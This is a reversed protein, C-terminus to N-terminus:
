IEVTSPPPAGAGIGSAVPQLHCRDHSWDCRRQQSRIPVADGAQCVLGRWIRGPARLCAPKTVREHWTRGPPNRCRTGSALSTAQGRRTLGRYGALFGALALREADSFAPQIAALATSPAATTM